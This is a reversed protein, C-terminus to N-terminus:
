LEAKMLFRMTKNCQIRRRELAVGEEDSDHEMAAEADFGSFDVVTLQRRLEPGDKTTALVRGERGTSRRRQASGM